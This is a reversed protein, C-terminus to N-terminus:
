GVEAGLGAADRGAGGGAAAVAGLGRLRLVVALGLRLV